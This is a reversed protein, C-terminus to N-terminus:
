SREVELVSPRTARGICTLVYGQSREDATLCNPEELTVAGERLKMRCAGCGGMTCSYPAPVRQGLASELVTEHARNVVEYRRGGVVVTVAVDGGADVAAHAAPSSFREERISAAAVGRALLAGRVADMMPEPGCVLYEAPGEIPMAALERAATAADLRGVGGTWDPPAADLVHRLTCRAPHAESLAALEDRFLIDAASRNGILVFVRTDPLRALADRAIAVLPTVGSGGGILVLTAPSGEVVFSGSPGFVDLLDGAAARDNLHQSVRGGAVRKITVRVSGPPSAAEMPLSASYARRLVEGGLRLALTFFQGPRYHIPAGSPDVLTLSIADHTERTVAAVRLSRAGLLAAPRPSPATSFFPPPSRGALGDLVMRADRVWQTPVLARAREIWPSRKLM